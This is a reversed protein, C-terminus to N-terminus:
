GFAFNVGVIGHGGTVGAAGDVKEALFNYGVVVASEGAFDGGEGTGGRGAMLAEVGRKGETAAQLVIRGYISRHFM